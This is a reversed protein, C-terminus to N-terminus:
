DEAIITYLQQYSLKYGYVILPMCRMLSGNALNGGSEYQKEM